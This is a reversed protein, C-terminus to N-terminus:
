GSIEKDIIEQAGKLIAAISPFKAAALDFGADIIQKAEIELKTSSVLKAVGALSGGGAQLGLQLEIAAVGAEESIILKGAEGVPIIKEYKMSKSKGKRFILRFLWALAHAALEVTSNAAFKKTKGLWYEWVAYAFFCCKNETVAKEVADICATTQALCQLFTM